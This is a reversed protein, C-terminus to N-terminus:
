GGGRPIHSAEGRHAFRVFWKKGPPGEPIRTSYRDLTPEQASFGGICSVSSYRLSSLISFRHSTSRTLSFMPSCRTLLPYSM